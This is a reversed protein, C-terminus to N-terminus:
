HRAHLRRHESRDTLQLNEIRNDDKIGNIHHVIEESALKRGLHQEMIHRHEKVYIRGVRLLVYGRMDYARGGKWHHAGEGTPKGGARDHAFM